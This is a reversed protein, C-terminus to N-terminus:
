RYECGRMKMPNAPYDKQKYNKNEQPMKNSKGFQRDGNNLGRKMNVEKPGNEYAVASQNYANDRYM